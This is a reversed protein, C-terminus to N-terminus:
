ICAKAHSDFYASQLPLHTHGTKGPILASSLIHSLYPGCGVLPYNMAKSSPICSPAYSPLNCGVDRESAVRCQSDPLFIIINMPIISCLHFM